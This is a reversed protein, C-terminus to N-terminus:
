SVEYCVWVQFHRIQKGEKRPMFRWTRTRRRLRVHRIVYEGIM